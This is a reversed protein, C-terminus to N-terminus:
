KIQDGQELIWKFCKNGDIEGIERAKRLRSFSIAHKRKGRSFYKLASACSFIFGELTKQEKKRCVISLCFWPEVNWKRAFEKIREFDNIVITCSPTTESRDRLKVSIGVIKDTNFVHKGKDRAMLDFFVTNVNMVHIRKKTLYFALAMEGFNGVIRSAESIRTEKM